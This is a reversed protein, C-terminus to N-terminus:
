AIATLSIYFYRNQTSGKRERSEEFIRRIVSSLLLVCRSEIFPEAHLFDLRRMEGQGPDIRSQRKERMERPRIEGQGPDKRAGKSRRNKVESTFDIVDRRNESSNARAAAAVDANGDRGRALERTGSGRRGGLARGARGAGSSDPSGRFVDRGRVLLLFPSSIFRGVGCNRAAFVRRRM